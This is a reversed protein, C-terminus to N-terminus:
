PRRVRIFSVVGGVGLVAIVGPGPVPVYVDSQHLAMSYVQSHQVGSFSITFDTIPQPVSSLDWQLLYTNNYLPEPGTPMQVTGAFFQDILFTSTSALNQAGGSFSLVPLLGNFFDFTQAEGIQVQFIVNRLNAVPTTDRVGLTGGFTNPTASFGGFYIAASQPLPGGGAGGAIRILAADAPENLNFTNTITRNSGIPAPWPATGPFAGYGPYNASTLGVWGDYQSTGFVPPNIIAGGPIFQALATSTTALALATAAALKPM